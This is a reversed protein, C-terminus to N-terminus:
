MSVAKRRFSRRVITRCGPLDTTSTRALKNLEVLNPKLVEPPLRHQAVAEALLTIDIVEVTKHDRSSLKSDPESFEDLGGPLVAIMPAPANKLQEVQELCAGANEPDIVELEGAISELDDIQEAKVEEAALRADVLAKTAAEEQIAEKKYQYDSILKTLFDIREQVSKLNDARWDLIVRRQENLPDLMRKYVRKGKALISKYIVLAEEATSYTADTLQPSLTAHLNLSQNTFENASKIAETVDIPHQISEM